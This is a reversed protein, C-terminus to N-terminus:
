ALVQRFRGIASRIRSKVTGLPLKLQQAIEGHSLGEYFALEIVHRQEAPLERFVETVRSKTLNIQALSEPSHGSDVVDFGEAFDTWDYTRNRRERRLRDLARSRALLMLWGFLTGRSEHYNSAQRWVQLYVDMAVEEAVSALSVIRLILGYIPARTQDYFESFANEDGDAIRDLLHQLSSERDVTDRSDIEKSMEPM